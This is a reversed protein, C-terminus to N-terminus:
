KPATNQNHSISRRSACTNGFAACDMHTAANTYLDGYLLWDDMVPKYGGTLFRQVLMLMGLFATMILEPINKSQSVASLKNKFSNIDM